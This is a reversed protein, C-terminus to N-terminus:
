FRDVKINKWHHELAIWELLSQKPPLPPTTQCLQPQRAVYNNSGGYLFSIYIMKFQSEETVPQCTISLEAFKIFCGNFQRFTLIKLSNQHHHSKLQTVQCSLFICCEEHLNHGPCIFVM